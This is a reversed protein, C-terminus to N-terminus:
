AAGKEGPERLGLGLKKARITRLARELREDDGEVLFERLENAEHLVRDLQALVNQRNTTLIDFMMTVDSAALRSTDRFGSGLLFESRPSEVNVGAVLSAALLYPVHSTLAAIRDHRDADIQFARGGVAHVLDAALGRMGPGTRALPVLAFPAGQFLSPEAAELGAREKGCLPHGGICDVGDPLKNMARVIQVKTSGLDMLRAPAPLDSGLRGILELAARVPVALLALDCAALAEAPDTAIRDVVGLELAKEAVIRSRDVGQISAVQDKLAMALSGGMLGLGIVALRCDALKM